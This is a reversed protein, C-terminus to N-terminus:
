RRFVPMAAGDPTIWFFRGRHDFPLEVQKGFVPIKKRVPTGFCITRVLAKEDTAVGSWIATTEDLRRYEGTVELNLVRGKRLIENFALMENFAAQVDMVDYVWQGVKAIFPYKFDSPYTGIFRGAFLAITEAGRLMTHRVIERMIERSPLLIGKQIRAQFQRQHWIHLWPILMEDDKLVRKARSFSSLCHYFANWDIKGQSKGGGAWGAPIYCRPQAVNMGSGPWGYASYYGPRRPQERNVPWAFFNGLLVNPFVKRCPDSLGVRITYARAEDVVQRYGDPSSLRERGFRKVCRPCRLAEALAERVRKEEDARNRLYAAAEYDITFMRVDLGADKIVRCVAEAREAHEALRPAEMMHSPCAFWRHDIRAPPAHPCHEETWQGNVQRRFVRQVWGLPLVVIPYGKSSLHKFIPLYERAMEVSNMSNCLPMLGREMYTDWIGEVDGLELGTPTKPTQWALVPLRDGLPRTLPAIHERILKLNGAPDGDVDAGNALQGTMITTVLIPLSFQMM